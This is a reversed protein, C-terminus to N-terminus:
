PEVEAPDPTAAADQEGLDETSSDVTTPTDPETVLAADIAASAETWATAGPTTSAADIEDRTFTPSHGAMARAQLQSRLQVPTMVDYGEARDASVRDMFRAMTDPRARWDAFADVLYGWDGALRNHERWRQGIEGIRDEIREALESDIESDELTRTFVTSLAFDLRMAFEDPDRDRYRRPASYSHSFEAM